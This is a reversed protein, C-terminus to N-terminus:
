INMESSHEKSWIFAQPANLNAREWQLRDEKKMWLWHRMQHYGLVFLGQQELDLYTPFGNARPDFRSALEDMLKEIRYVMGRREPDDKVKRVHHRANKMLRVFAIKPTASASSFFRDVVTANVDGQATQQLRELVAMLLGLSYGPSDNRPDMDRKVERYTTATTPGIRRRRNLVGKILASRADRRNQDTWDTRGIEARTRELARELVSFPYPSGILAAKLLSSTLPSPVQDRDGRPALSELLLTMPIQKPLDSKKPKPTNRVIDLDAFHLALNKATRGVTSELWDRLIARGQTGTITLAYFATPDELDPSKGKWISQYLEKVQDPNGELLGSFVSCFEDGKGDAAWFLVATDSSLKLNRRPLTQGPQHPDPYAPYLLRNLATACAEAANRSIPANLNGKWGYSEFAKCNFSVLAVGSPTGGPVKKVSPFLGGPICQARSVLCCASSRDTQLMQRRGKKWYVKVASRDTVLQDIDSDYVFAFLDNGACGEPLEVPSKGAELNELFKCLSKVAEDNTADRCIQAKEQFLRFRTKLKDPSRKGEPDIGFAYEAKDYLLFAKDRNTRGGDRPVNFTKAVAKPKKKKAEEPPIHHTGEIGILEGESSIRVLWAIQKPEFDPDSVLDERQALQYLAQLIM